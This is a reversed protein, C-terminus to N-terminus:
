AAGGIPQEIKLTIRPLILERTDGLTKSPMPTMGAGHVAVASFPGSVPKDACVLDPSVKSGEPIPSQVEHSCGTTLLAGLAAVLPVWALSKPMPKGPPLSKKRAVLVRPAASAWLSRRLRAAPSTALAPASSRIAEPRADDSAAGAHKPCTGALPPLRSM